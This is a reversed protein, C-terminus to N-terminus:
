ENQRDTLLSERLKLNGFQETFLLHFEHGIHEDIPPTRRHTVDMVLKVIPFRWSYIFLMHDRSESVPKLFDQLLHLVPTSTSPQACIAGLTRVM